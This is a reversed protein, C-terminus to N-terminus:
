AQRPGNPTRAWSRGELLLRPLPTDAGPTGFARGIARSFQWVGMSWGVGYTVGAATPDCPLLPRVIGFGLGFVAGLGVATTLRAKRPIRAELEPPVRSDLLAVAFLGAGAATGAAVGKAWGM